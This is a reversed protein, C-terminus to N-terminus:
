DTKIIDCFFKYATQFAEYDDRRFREVNAKQFNEIAEQQKQINFDTTRKMIAVIEECDKPSLYERVTIRCACLVATRNKSNVPIKEDTITQNYPPENQKVFIACVQDYLVINRLFETQISHYREIIAKYESKVQELNKFGTSGDFYKEPNELKSQFLNLSEKWNGYLFEADKRKADSLPERLKIRPADMEWKRIMHENFLIVDSLLKIKKHHWEFIKLKEVINCNSGETYMYHAYGFTRHLLKEHIIRVRASLLKETKATLETSFDFLDKTEEVIYDTDPTMKTLEPLDYTVFYNNM